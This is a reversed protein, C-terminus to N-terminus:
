MFPSAGFNATVNAGYASGAAQAFAYYDTLTLGNAAVGMSVGNKFFTLQRADMDLLVGLVDGGGLPVGYATNGSATILLGESVWLAWSNPASYGAANVDMIGMIPGYRGAWSNIKIEFYAKGTDIHNQSRAAASSGVDATLGDPYFSAGGRAVDWLGGLGPVGNHDNVQIGQSPLIISNNPM